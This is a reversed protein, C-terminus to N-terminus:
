GPTGGLVSGGGQNEGKPLYKQPTMWNARVWHGTGEPGREKPESRVGQNARRRRHLGVEWEGARSPNPLGLPTQQKKSTGM